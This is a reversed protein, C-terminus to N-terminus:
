TTCPSVPRHWSRTSDSWLRPLSRFGWLGSLIKRVGDFPIKVAYRLYGAIAVAVPGIYGKPREGKGTSFFLAGCDRCYCRQKIFHTLLPRIIVIDEQTHEEVDECASVNHSHCKPCQEPSVFVTRDPKREPKKRTAGRHGVPAGRKKLEQEKQEEASQDSSKSEEQEESDTNRAFPRQLLDRLKRQLVQVEQKLREIETEKEKFAKTAVDFVCRLNANQAKLRENEALVEACSRFGLHPCTEKNPCVERGELGTANGSYRRSFLGSVQQAAHDTLRRVQLTGYRRDNTGHM